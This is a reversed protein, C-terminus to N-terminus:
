SPCSRTGYSERHGTRGWALPRPSAASRADDDPNELTRRSMETKTDGDERVSRWVYVAYKEHRFGAYRRSLKPL